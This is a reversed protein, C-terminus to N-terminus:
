PKKKVPTPPLSIAGGAGGAWFYEKKSLFCCYIKVLFFGKDTFTKKPSILTNKPLYKSNNELSFQKKKKEFFIILFKKQM